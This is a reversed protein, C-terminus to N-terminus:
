VKPLSLSVVSEQICWLAIADPPSRSILLSLFYIFLYFLGHTHLPPSHSATDNLDSQVRSTLLEDFIEDLSQGHQFFLGRTFFTSLNLHSCSFILSIQQLISIQDSGPAM